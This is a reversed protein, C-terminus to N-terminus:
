FKNLITVLGTINEVIIDAHTPESIGHPDILVTACGLEQAPFIENIANDGICLIQDFEVQYYQKIKTLHDKTQLPKKGDFIKNDFFDLFGLKTVIVESDKLPSNTLLVFKKVTALKKLVEKFGPIEKMKFESTMMYERTELFSTEAAKIDIGYHRAIAAPVWWLDGINIMSHFEFHIRDQYLTKLQATSLQVGNWTYAEEVEGHEQYLVLNNNVDYVTGIKLTHSGNLVSHYDRYFSEKSAFDLKECLRDAYYDFHHTDEYLTGDLDFVIVKINKM